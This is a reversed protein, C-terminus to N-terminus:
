PCDSCGQAAFDPLGGAGSQGINVDNTQGYAVMEEANTVGLDKNVWLILPEYTVCAIATYDEIKYTVDRM